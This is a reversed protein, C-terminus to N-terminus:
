HYNMLSLEILLRNSEDLEILYCLCRVMKVIPIMVSKIKIEKTDKKYCKKPSIELSLNSVKYAQFEYIFIRHLQAFKDYCCYSLCKLM